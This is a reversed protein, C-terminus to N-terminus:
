KTVETFTEYHDDTYYILGDSSFLIRKGNRYTGDFDIDCERWERGKKVPLLKEYNGFHDGGISKGPAVDWLNGMSSVWGLAQAEKKTIYNPPLEGYARLYAAVHEKDSYSEGRVVFGTQTKSPTATVKPTATAKLAKTTKPTATIKPTATAKLAKTTKPTATIKPTATAKLAKTAKPTATVKPTATATQVATAAPNETANRQFAAECGGLAFVILLLTLSLAFFKM